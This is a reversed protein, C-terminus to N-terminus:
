KLYDFLSTQSIRSMAALEANLAVQSQTFATATAAMDTASVSSAISALDVKESNLYTEQAQLQNMANGYFVRQGTIHNFASSIETVAGSINTNTQLATILDSVSQFVNGSGATFLQSGPLNIQLSYNQGVQVKNTGANGNYTVGSPSLPDAVFPQATSTGSFIFEGQYPTNALSLLQQQIGSLEAAVDARDSDSLTGNAGEVGLSIARQLATVVSSLTSDATYLLGNVSTISRLFTDAQATQDTNSVMQAAGAPDDSPKNIRSGTALDLQVVNLDLSSRQAALNSATNNFTSTLNSAATLVGQRLSISSPDTSLQAISSFLNSIQAGIDSAGATFLTQAQNLAGVSANLQGQQGSEQQIRLQLIPDRISELRTLSVGTGITLNGLVVPPTEELIPVQRSYGPTNVNAANNTTAELAGQDAAMAGTAVFMTALLGPM